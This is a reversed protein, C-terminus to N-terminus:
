RSNWPYAICEALIESVKKIMGHILPNIIKYIVQQLYDRYNMYRLRNKDLDETKIEIEKESLISVVENM